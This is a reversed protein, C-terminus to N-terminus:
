PRCSATGADESSPSFLSTVQVSRRRQASLV